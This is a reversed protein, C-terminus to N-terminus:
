LVLDIVKRIKENDEPLGTKECLVQHLREIEPVMSLLTKMIENNDRGCSWTELLSLQWSELESREGEIKSWDWADNSHRDVEMNWGKVIFSRLNNIITLAYYFESRHVRRYVEHIYSFVKGRWKNVEDPTVQYTIQKSENLLRAVIGHPDHLIKIGKFWISPILRDISYFFVDVKIFNDFHVVTFPALPNMDEFFLIEGWDRPIQQKRNVYEKFKEADVVIRLDIDSFLDMNGKALSGGVFIALVDSNSKLSHVIKALLAKRVEPLSKDREKHRSHFGM